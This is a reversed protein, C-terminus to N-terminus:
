ENNNMRLDGMEDRASFAMLSELQEQLQKNVRQLMNELVAIPMGLIDAVQQRSHHQHYFLILAARENPQLAHLALKLYRRKQHELLLLEISKQNKITKSAFDIQTRNDASQENKHRNELVKHFWSYLKANSQCQNLRM